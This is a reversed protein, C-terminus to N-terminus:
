HGGDPVVPSFDLTVVTGKRVKDEAPGGEGEPVCPSGSEDLCPSPARVSTAPISQGAVRGGPPGSPLISVGYEAALWVSEHYTLGRFDPVAVWEVENEGEPYLWVTTGMGVKSGAAPEMRLLRSQPFFRDAPLSPALQLRSLALAAEGATMGNLDPVEVAQGLLALESASYNQSSGGRNLIRAAVRNAARAAAAGLSDTTEPKHVSVLIVYQPDRCPALGVFSFTRRDDHSDVATGTKGGLDLGMAGFTGAATGRAVVETMMSRVRVCTEESFVRSGEELDFPVMAELGEETLATGLRPKVTYGGNGIAAFLQALQIATLSSSEGFTLNAFDIPMPDAHLYGPAEMPLDIGTRGYLGLRQIWDYYLKKGVRDGLQVFVPNCSRYFAQRLTEEGHGYGTHCNISEGQIILPDDRFVTEESAVGEELAIALTVAKFVSGPEYIDTININDWLNTSLYATKEEQGLQDWAAQTFGLPLADPRSLDFSPLQAMALVDGTKVDMVLGNVGSILGAAAAVTMLEEQLISLIEMDLSTVLHCSKEWPSNVPRSFPTVGRTSYNNRRAFTYGAQGSLLADYAAELGSVGKIRGTDTRTLGLVASALGDNNYVRREEADFRVGGVRNEDLWEKLAMAESEPVESAITVYTLPRHGALNKELGTWGTARDTRIMELIDACSQSDLKLYRGLTEVILRDDIGKVKTTVDVPTIGIRFVYTSFALPYGNKDLIMGRRAQDEQSIYQQGAAKAALAQSDTIQLRYFGTTVASATVLFVLVLLAAKAEFLRGTRKKPLNGARATQRGRKM